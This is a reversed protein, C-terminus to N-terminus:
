HRGTGPLTCDANRIDTQIGPDLIGTHHTSILCVHVYIHIYYIICTPPPTHTHTIHHTHSTAFPGLQM